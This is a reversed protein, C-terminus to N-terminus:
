NSRFPQGSLYLSLRSRMQSSLQEENLAQALSAAEEVTKIADVFEFRQLLNGGFLQRAGGAKEGVKL